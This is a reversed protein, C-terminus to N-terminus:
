HHGSNQKDWSLYAPIPIKAQHRRIIEAFAPARNARGALRKEIMILAESLCFLEQYALPLHPSVFFLFTHLAM